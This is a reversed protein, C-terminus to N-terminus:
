EEKKPKYGIRHFPNVVTSAINKLHANVRKFFRMLLVLAVLDRRIGQDDKATLIKEIVEDCVDSLKGYSELVFLASAEDDERFAKLSAEFFENTERWVQDFASTYEGFDLKRPMLTIIDAINKNYDGVRETDDVVSLLILASYLDQNGAISLHEFVKRRVDRHLRNVEKDTQKITQLIDPASEQALAVTVLQFMEQSLEFMKVTQDFAEQLLGSKPKGKFLNMFDRRLPTV